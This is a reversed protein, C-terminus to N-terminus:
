LQGCLLARICCRSPEPVLFQGLVKPLFGVRLQTVACGIAGVVLVRSESNGCRNVLVVLAGLTGVGDDAVHTLLITVESNGKSVKSEKIAM